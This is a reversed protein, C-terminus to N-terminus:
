EVVHEDLCGVPIATGYWVGDAVIAQRMGLHAQCPQGGKSYQQSMVTPRTSFDLHTQLLALVRSGAWHLDVNQDGYGGLSLRGDRQFRYQPASSPARSMAPNQEGATKVVEYRAGLQSIM